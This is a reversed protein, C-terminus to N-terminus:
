TNIHLGLRSLLFRFFLLPHKFLTLLITSITISTIEREFPNERKLADSIFEEFPPPVAKPLKTLPFFEVGGVEVGSQLKGSVVRCEFLHVPKIFFGGTYTGVRRVVEVKLGTEEFIERIIASEPDEGVDMGGGPLVWVPVDRRKILLVQDENFIIGLVSKVVM